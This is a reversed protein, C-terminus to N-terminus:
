PEPPTERASSAPDRRLRSLIAGTRHAWACPIRLRALACVDFETQSCGRDAVRRYYACRRPHARQYLIDLEATLGVRLLNDMEASQGVHKLRIRISSEALDARREGALERILSTRVIRYRAVPVPSYAFRFRRALRLWMDWDEFVLAEDYPGITQLASRRLLTGLSPIFNGVLLDRYIDGDPMTTFSRHQEIFMPGLANGDEDMVLADSYVVATTDPQQEMMETQVALKEPLWVDDTSITAVYKGTAHRLAENRSRCIGMNKGHAIFRANVGTTRLWDDILDPSGDTSRDDLIILEVNQYTQARISELCDVLFRKHNFCTAIVTVRPTAVNM